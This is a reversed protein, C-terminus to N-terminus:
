LSAPLSQMWAAYVSHRQKTSLLQYLFFPFSSLFILLLMLKRKVMNPEKHKVRKEKKIKYVHKTYTTYTGEHKLKNHQIEKM